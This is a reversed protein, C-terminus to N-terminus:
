YLTDYKFKLSEDCSVLIQYAAKWHGSSYHLSMQFVEEAAPYDIRGNKIFAKAAAYPWGPYDYNKLEDETEQMHWKYIDNNYQNEDCWTYEFWRALGETVCKQYDKHRPTANWKEERRQYNIGLMHFHIAHFVEHALVIELGTKIKLADDPNPAKTFHKVINYIYLTIRNKTYDYIGLLSATSKLNKLKSIIKGIKSFGDTHRYEGHAHEELIREAYATIEKVAKNHNDEDNRRLIGAIDALLGNFYSDPHEQQFSDIEELVKKLEYKGYSRKPMDDSIFIDLSSLLDRNAEPFFYTSDIISDMKEYLAQIDNDTIPLNPFEYHYRIKPHKLM